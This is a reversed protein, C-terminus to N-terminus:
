KKVMEIIMDLKEDMSHFQAAVTEREAKCSDLRKIDEQYGNSKAKLIGYSILGMGVPIVFGLFSSIAITEM